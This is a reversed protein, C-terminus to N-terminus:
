EYVVTIKSAAATVVTLGVTFPVNFIYTDEVINSKLVAIIDGSAATNDYVTIAGAATEGVVIHKLTGVGTKINTTTATSIYAKAGSELVSVKNGSVAGALTALYTEVQDIYNDSSKQVLGTFNEAYVQHITLNAQASGSFVWIESGPNYPVFVGNANADVRFVVNNTASVTSNYGFFLPASNNTVLVGNTGVNRTSAFLQSTGASVSQVPAIQHITINPTM